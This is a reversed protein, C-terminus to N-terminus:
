QTSDKRVFRTTLKIPTFYSVAHLENRDFITIREADDGEYLYRIPNRGRFQPQQEHFGDGRHRVPERYGLSSETFLIHAFRKAAM